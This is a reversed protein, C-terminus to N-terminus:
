PMGVVLLDGLTDPPEDAAIGSRVSFINPPSAKRM